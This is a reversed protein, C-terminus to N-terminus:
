TYCNNTTITQGCFQVHTQKKRPTKRAGKKTDKKAIM